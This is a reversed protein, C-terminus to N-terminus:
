NIILVFKTPDTLHPKIEGLQNAKYGSINAIMYDNIKKNIKELKLKDTSIIGKM